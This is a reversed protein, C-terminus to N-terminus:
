RRSAGTGRSRRVAKVAAETDGAVVHKEELNRGIREWLDDVYAGIDRNQVYNEILLRVVDGPSKGESQAIEALRKKLESDIQVLLQESM